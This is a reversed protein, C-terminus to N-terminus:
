SEYNFEYETGNSICHRELLNIIPNMDETDLEGSEVVVVQPNYESYSRRILISGDCAIYIVVKRNECIFRLGENIKM